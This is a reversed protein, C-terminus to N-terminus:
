PCATFGEDKIEGSATVSLKYTRNFGSLCFTGAEAGQALVKFLISPLGVVSVNQGLTLGTIIDVEGGCVAVIKYNSGDTFKLRHGALSNTGCGAPKEGALAKNQAARLDNKLNLAAGKLTQRKNFDNYSVIGIGLLIGIISFVILLEILTYGQRAM